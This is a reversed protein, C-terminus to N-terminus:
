IEDGIRIQLQLLSAVQALTAPEPTIASLNGIIEGEPATPSGTMQPQELPIEGAQFQKRRTLLEFMQDYDEAHGLRVLDNSM